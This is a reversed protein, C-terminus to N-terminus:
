RELKLLDRTIEAHGLHTQQGIDFTGDRADLTIPQLDDLPQREGRELISGTRWHTSM